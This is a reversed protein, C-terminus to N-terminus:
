MKKMSTTLEKRCRHGALPPLSEEVWPKLHRPQHHLFRRRLLHRPLRSKTGPLDEQPRFHHHPLLLRHRQLRRQLRLRIFESAKAEKRSCIISFQHRPLLHRHLRLLHHDVLRLNKPRCIFNIMM